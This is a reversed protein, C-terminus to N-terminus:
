IKSVVIKYAPKGDENIIEEGDIFKHIVCNLFDSTVDQKTIWMNGAKNLRGAYVKDSIGGLGLRINKM